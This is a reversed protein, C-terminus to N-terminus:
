TNKTRESFSVNKNSRAKDWFSGDSKENNNEKRKGFLEKVKKIIGDFYNEYIVVSLYMKCFMETTKGVQLYNTLYYMLSKYMIKRQQVTSSINKNISVSHHHIYSDNVIITKFGKGLLNYGLMTEEYYLFVNEDYIKGLSIYEKKLMLLSGPVCEVEALESRTCYDDPYRGFPFIKQLIKGTSLVASLTSPVHWAYGRQVRGNSQYPIASACMYEDKEQLALKMRVVLTEKFEVDPNCIMYYDIDYNMYAYEIGKNNGYGYGGNKDTRIVRIKGFNYNCLREYSNDTSCNDVVVIYNISTYNQILEILSITTDSDNYNLIIAAVKSM